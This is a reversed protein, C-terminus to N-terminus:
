KTVVCIFFPSAYPIVNDQIMVRSSKGKHSCHTDDFQKLLLQIELQLKIWMLRQVDVGVAYYAKEVDGVM